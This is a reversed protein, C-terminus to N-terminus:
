GRHALPIPVEVFRGGGLNREDLIKARTPRFRFPVLAFSGEERRLRARWREFGPFRASYVKEARIASIRHPRRCRGFLQVGQDPNGWRQHSDFVAVAMSSNLELNRAHCSDPYSFFVLSWDEAWAYYATNIHARGDPSVTAFSALVNRRLIRTLSARLTRDSLMGREARVSM